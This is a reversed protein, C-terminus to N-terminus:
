HCVSTNSFIVELEPQSDVGWIMLETKSTNFTYRWKLSYAHAISLLGNMSRKFLSMLAIDDAHAPSTVNVRCFCIGYGSSKLETILENIYMTYLCMSLPSGQPIGCKPNFWEGSMGSVFATCMFDTFGSKLLKWFVSNIGYRWLKYLLGKIWVSDFAKRTDLITGYVSNGRNLNYAVAEQVLFSTHLCSCNPQGASQIENMVVDSELWSRERDIM